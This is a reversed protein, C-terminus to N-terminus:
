IGMLLPRHFRFWSKPLFCWAPAAAQSGHSPLGWAAMRTLFSFPFIWDMHHHEMTIEPRGFFQSLSRGPFALMSKNTVTSFACVPACAFCTGVARGAAPASTHQSHVCIGAAELGSPRKGGPQQGPLHVCKVPSGCCPWVDWGPM